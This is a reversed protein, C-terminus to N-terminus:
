YQPWFDEAIREVGGNSFSTEPVYLKPKPLDIKKLAEQVKADAVSTQPMNETRYIVKDEPVTLTVPVNVLELTVVSVQSSASVNWNISRVNYIPTGFQDTVRTGSPTGDSVIRLELKEVKGLGKMLKGVRIEEEPDKM